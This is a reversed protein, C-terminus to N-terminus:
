EVVGRGPISSAAMSNCTWREYGRSGLWRCSVSGILSPWRASMTCEDLSGHSSGCHSAMIAAGYVHHENNNPRMAASALHPRSNSCVSYYPRDTTEGSRSGLLLSGITIGNPISFQTLELFWTSSTPKSGDHSPAIKLAFLPPRNYLIPVRQRLRQM